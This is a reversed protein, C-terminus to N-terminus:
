PDFTVATPFAGIMALHRNRTLLRTQTFLLCLLCRAARM